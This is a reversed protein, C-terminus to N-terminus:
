KAKREVIEIKLVNSERAERTDATGACTKTLQVSYEGARSLDFWEAVNISEEVKEHPGVGGGINCPRKDPEERWRAVPELQNQRDDRIIIGAAVPGCGSSRFLLLRDSHNEIKIDVRVPSGVTLAITPSSITVDFTPGQSFASGACPIFM